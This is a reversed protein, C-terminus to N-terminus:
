WIIIISFCSGKSFIQTWILDTYKKVKMLVM